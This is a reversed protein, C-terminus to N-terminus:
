RAREGREGLRAEFREISARAKLYSLWTSADQQAQLRLLQSEYAERREAIREPPPQVAKLVQAVLYGGDPLSAGVWAPLSAAPARFIADLVDGPLQADTGRGLTRVAALGAPPAEGGRLAKLKAEGAERALRRSEREIVQALVEPQVKEFPKRRAPSHELIRAAVLTNSGVEIADTNRRNRVSEDAFLAALLKPHQLPSKDASGSPRREVGDATRIALKFREAAPKLSDSQEYVLNSFAEAAEAYQRAALQRRLEAEIAPRVIPFAQEAAPQIATLRIVHLGFDSSVVDSVEGVKMAFAADAFPKIMADRTFLGLDGGQSASGPDQSQARALAAFDGGARAQAVLSRARAMARERDATSANAELRILIHSARRQEPAVYRAKNQDYYSRLDDESVSVGRALDDASLVVYEIRASEPSEFAAANDDYHKRLQEDTPRVGAAHDAPAFRLTRVERREEQLAILRDVVARPMTSGAGAADPLLRLTQDRRLQAEFSAENLGQGKLLAQYRAMDFGGDAKRLGPIELITNRLQADSVSLHRRESEQALLREVVLGDLIERRAEPTDLLSADIQDGLVERLQELRRRTAQDFEQRTIRAGGVKAVNDDDSLFQDYGSVGFFVFAPFILLLLISLLIRQYKRIADFM